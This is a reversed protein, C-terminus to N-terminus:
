ANRFSGKGSEEVIPNIAKAAAGTESDAKELRDLFKSLEGGLHRGSEGQLMSFHSGPVQQLIAPGRLWKRWSDADAGAESSAEALMLVTPVTVASMPRYGLSAEVDREMCRFLRAEDMAEPPIEGAALRQALERSVGGHREFHRALRQRSLEGSPVLGVEPAITDMLVLIGDPRGMARRQLMMEFAVMGGMSWGGFIPPQAGAGLESALTRAARRYRQALAEVVSYRRLSLHLEEDSEMSLEPAEVAWVSRHGELGAALESYLAVSGGGGHILVLPSRQSPGEALPVLWSPRQSTRRSSAGAPAGAARVTAGEADLRQAVAAVTPALFFAALALRVGFEAELHALLRTAALSHGGHDFFDDDVGLPSSEGIGLQEKWIALVRAELPTRPAVARSRSRAQPLPLAARDVKDHSTRPLVDMVVVDSPVMAEPLRKGLFGLLSDSWERAEQESRGAESEQSGAAAATAVWAVLRPGTPGEVPGVSAEGIDPHEELVQEIEGPEIRYGRIKVQEDLRGLFELRGDSRFRGRDGTFYQRGGPEGSWPDPRFRRATEAPRNRYGRALQGGGLVIQGPSGAPLPQGHDDVVRLTVSGVPRGLSPPRGGADVPAVAGTTVLVTSETPGYNNTFRFPLGAAPRRNLTEGGTLLERLAAARPWELEVLAEAIPTIALVSHLERQLIFDRLAMVHGRTSEDPVHLSGGQTLLPWIELVSPDFAPGVIRAAREGETVPYARQRWALMQALAGHSVEVGKPRGTSGSTYILYALRRPDSVLAPLEAGSADEPSHQAPAGLPPAELLEPLSALDAPSDGDATPTLLDAILEARSILLQAGGDQLVFRTRAAPWSPDLPLYPRGARWIAWLCAVELPSRELLVAVPAEPDGEPLAEAIGEALRRTWRDLLAYSFEEGDEDVLAPLLASREVAAELLETALPPTSSGGDGRAWEWTLQHREAASLWPLSGAPADPAALAGALLRRFRSLIRQATTADFLDSRYDVVARLGAEVHRVAFSVDLKATAPASAEPRITTGPLRLEPTAQTHHAFMVEFLPNRSLDRRPALEEVLREFSVSQRSFAAFVDGRVAAVLDRFSLDARPRLRLALTNVFLGVVDAMDEDERGASPTGLVLDQREGLRGLVIGLASLYVVFPTAQAQRAFSEVSEELAAPWVQSHQAGAFTMQPPRPRDMPLQLPEPPSSLQDRWWEFDEAASGRAEREAQRRAHATYTSALPNLEPERDEVLATYTESLDRLLLGMSWGDFVIHHLDLVLAHLTSDVRLLICRYLPGRELDFPRHAERRALRRAHEWRQAAPFAGLDVVPVDLPRPELFRVEPEGSAGDFVARLQRHRAVVASWAAALLKPQLANPESELRFLAPINYAASDPELRDLFWLRAQAFSVPEGGQAASRGRPSHIVAVQGEGADSPTRTAADLRRGLAEVTPGEFLARLPLDVGFAKRVRGMLRTAMLSHGGLEFFDDTVGASRGLVEEWLSCLREETATRPAVAAASSAADWSPEPLAKRDIKGASSLPFSELAVWADPVMYPPVQAEVGQRLTEEQAGAQSASPSASQAVDTAPTWYAALRKGEGSGFVLVVAEEVGPLSRLAAEIEGLEVRFGRVKVQRDARGIFELAGDARYRVLDGSRYLRGGPEGSFPDPVFSRATRAPDGDYGRALSPGGIRLEGVAGSPLAEGRPDVVALRAQATARGIPLVRPREGRPCRWSTVSITAETPGYRNLLDARLQRHFTSPLDAPVTEGGTVVTHLRELPELAGQELLTTLLTPPFSAQTIGERSMLGLLYASDAVEGPRAVVVRAGAVLPGFIEVVSVDFTLTTKQLFADDPRFDMRRAYEMRNALAGHSIVVGKPRGTSGSTYLVYAASEPHPVVPLSKAEFEAAPLAAAAGASDSACLAEGRLQELRLVEFEPASATSASARRLTELRPALASSTLVLPAGCDELVLASRREPNSPDLPVYAGGAALVAMLALVADASRELFLAVRVEPGVGRSRLRAALAVTQRRLEGYTLSEGEWRLAVAAPQRRAVEFVRQLVAPYRDFSPRPAPWEVLTQQRQAASLLPLGQLPVEPTGLAADLLTDFVGNLRDITTVDFLSSPFVWWGAFVEGGDAEGAGEPARRPAAALTLDFKSLGIDFAEWGFDVGEWRPGEMPANQLIVMGQFLPTHALDRHQVLREVLRDFPVEQRSVAELSRERVHGLLTDFGQELVPQIRLVLPNVFFGVMSELEPRLRAAVPSGLALDRQGTLRSLLTSYAAVLVMFPTAGARRAYARLAASTGSRLRLPRRGGAPQRVAPRPRDSPLELVPLGQLREVWPQLRRELEEGRLWGRQWRAFDAYQLGPEELTAPRGELHARYLEDLERLLIGASWGDTAIHHLSLCFLHERPSFRLLFWRIPAESALDFPVAAGARLLAGGLREVVEPAVVGLDLGELDVTPLGQPLAPSGLDLVLQQVIPRSEEGEVESELPQERLVTRLVQHRSVLGRLAAHLSEVALPGRLRLATPVNYLPSDPDMRDAMWLSEQAYSLPAPASRLSELEQLAPFAPIAEGSSRGAELRRAVGAVSPDTFLAELSIEVGSVAALRDVLRVALLSHGGIQFFDDEAGVQDQLELLEQFVGAVLQEMATRPASRRSDTTAEVELQALAKRDVKGSANLPLAELFTFLTPAMYDPLDQLLDGRLSEGSLLDTGSESGLKSEPQSKSQGRPVVYAALAPGSAGQLVLVAADAVEPHARLRTEVEGLEVRFGRIKVQHDRRGLFDVSGDRLWRALDGTRYLRAGPPVAPTQGALPHPVFSEATRGPRGLYGRALQPGALCLEGPAGVPAVEGGIGLLDGEFIWAGTAPLPRGISPAQPSVPVPGSTAVVTNETPGYCNVLRFGAGAPAGRRLRDGGTLLVELPLTTVSESDLLAEALPTPLFSHTIGREQLWDILAAPDRLVRSPAIVLAAGAPLASWMEWVSADFGVGAVLTARSGSGLQFAQRHWDALEGLGRRPLLTGKPRGTSGSTYIVYALAGPPVSEPPVPETGGPGSMSRDVLEPPALRRVSLEEFPAQDAAVLIEAGADEVMYLLRATPLSPDMPLYAVGAWACGLVATVLEPSRPMCLAVPAREGAGGGSGLRGAFAMAELALQRYTWTLGEASELALAEPQRCAQYFVREVADAAPPPMEPMAWETTLQWRQAASLLPVRSLRQRPDRALSELGHRFREVFASATAVEYLDRRYLLHGLVSGDQQPELTAAWEQDVVTRQIFRFHAEELGCWGGTAGEPSTGPDANQYGLTVQFLPAVGQSREPAVEQVVRAFPVQARGMADLVVQRAQRQLDELTPDGSLDFRLAVTNVFFGVVSEVERRDRGAVPAGVTLDQVGGWRGLTGVWAALLSMFLSIGEDRGRRQIGEVLGAELRLDRHGAELSPQSTRPHDSVLALPTLGALRQRWWELAQNEASQSEASQKEINQTSAPSGETPSGETPSADAQPRDSSRRQHQWWAVDAFQLPTPALRPERGQQIAAYLEAWDRRVIGFSWGDMFLHHFSLLLDHCGPGCRLLRARSPAEAALRFPRLAERRALRQREQHLSEPELGSLDVVPLLAAEAAPLAQQIASGEQELVVSRLASHRDLLRRWSERLARVSLEAPLEAVRSINYLPRGPFLRELFWLREQAASLPVEVGKPHAEIRARKTGGQRGRAKALRQKLLERRSLKAAGPAAPPRPAASADKAELVGLAPGDDRGTPKM